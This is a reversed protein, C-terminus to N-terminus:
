SASISSESLRRPDSGSHHGSGDSSSHRSDDTGSHHGSDDATSSATAAVQLSTAQGQQWDPNHLMTVGPEAPVEVAGTVVVTEDLGAELAHELAWAVVPRGRVDALLKHHDAIFRTGGGAALVVAAVTM